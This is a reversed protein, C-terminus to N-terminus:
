KKFTGTSDWTGPWDSKNATCTYFMKTFSTVTANNFDAGYIITELAKCANFMYAMTTVKSTNFSSLDLSKLASCGSFLYSM